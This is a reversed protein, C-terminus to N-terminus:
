VVINVLKGAVYIVKKPDAGATFKRAREDALAAKKVDDEPTGAAVQIQSRLKGNVQIVITLVDDRVAEEDWAPWASASAAGAFGMREWMEDCLHPVFPSLLLLMTRVVFRGLRRAAADGEAGKWGFDNAANLLEMMAAVATNFQTEKEIDLTVKRITKHTKRLLGQGAPPLEELGPSVGDGDAAGREGAFRLAFHWVRGLFRASGEVGTESWEMDKEPPSAFLSFLRATDAGYGAVIEDPSVVNGKSKSMKFGDKYVIGQTVLRTVPEPVGVIGIDRMVKTFFRFYLLHLVAHEPGGVYVDVPLWADAAARDFIRTEDDPSLYRAFYWSSDVFTDMTETERHAPGGCAPCATNAFEPVRALPAEGTGTLRVGEPLRVPLDREPVPVIGCKECHIMPIPTGWYRQRSVGWDRLHWNVTPRGGGRKELYAAMAERGKGSTLGNFEASDAMVGDEVFAAALTGADLRDGAPPQIVVKIPIGYKKAFEFDRQDHAPVSMVAGTGYDALVFNALWIPIRKRTFPNIAYAGTFVGEKETDVATRAIKDTRRMREVFAEVEGRRDERILSPVLPHEPALVVYTAGFVTDARTTFVRIRSPEETSKLGAGAPRSCEACEEPGAVLFDMECGLSKGIWNRQMQVVREPWGTLRDLDALLEEAYATIKLAWEHVSKTTVTSECRWCAGDIVQENALVTACSPCWNVNSLRRYVLGREHMKLFLWQNWRYYKPTHTAVERDWDYSLGLAKMQRKVNSINQPTRIQPPIGEKIAANEAPLGFSDWGMPHMVVKGRMRWYRALLDGIVYCRVHGMHLNGSPYPYMELVYMKQGAPVDPARHARAEEWRGQWKPEIEQPRYQAKERDHTNVEGM